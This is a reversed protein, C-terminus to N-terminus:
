KSKIQDDISYLARQVNLVVPSGQRAKEVIQKILLMGMEDDEEESENSEQSRLTKEEWTKIKDRILSGSWREETTNCHLDFGNDQSNQDMDDHYMADPPSEADPKAMRFIEDYAENYADLAEGSLNVVMPQDIDSSEDVFTPSEQTSSTEEVETFLDRQSNYEFEMSRVRKQSDQLATELEMIRAELSSQIVEHLRLSLERPSVAYNGDDIHNTSTGSADRDLDSSGSPQRKVKDLRLEGQVVNAICDPDFEVFDSMKESSSTKMTLELRELEAELEAEIKSMSESYEAKQHDPDYGDCKRSGGQETFTTTPDGDFFSHQAIEPSNCREGPLEKVTVLDKMELEEHLDQVLNESKKLQENLKDVEKKYAVVTSIIGITIGLFFLLMGNPSGKANFPGASLRAVSSSMRRSHVMGFSQRSRRHLEMSRKPISSAGYMSRNEKSDFRMEAKFDTSARSIIRSGDTVLLPRVTPMSPSPLSSLVYEEMKVHEKYLQATLCSELSNLPKVSYSYPKTRLLRSRNNNRRFSSTEGTTFDPLLDNSKDYFERKGDGYLGLPVSALSLVNYDESKGLNPLVEGYSGSTSAVGPTLDCGLRSIDLFREESDDEKDLSVDKDLPNRELRRLPRNQDQIHQLSNYSESQGRNAYIPYSEPSEEKEKTSLNQWYKAIYGAGTAAAVVWLDM